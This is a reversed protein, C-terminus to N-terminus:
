PKTGEKNARSLLPARPIRISNNNKNRNANSSNNNIINVYADNNSNINNHKIPARPPDQRPQPLLDLRSSSSSSSIFIIIIIIMVIIRLSIM